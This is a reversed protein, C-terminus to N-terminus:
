YINESVWLMRRYGSNSIWMIPKLAARATWRRCAGTSEPGASRSPSIAKASGNNIFSVKTVISGNFRFSAPNVEMVVGDISLSDTGKQTHQERKLTIM